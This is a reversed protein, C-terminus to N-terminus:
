VSSVERNGTSYLPSEYNDHITEMSVNYEQEFWRDRDVHMRQVHESFKEM